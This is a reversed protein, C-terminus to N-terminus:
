GRFITKDKSVIARYRAVIRYITADLENPIPNKVVRTFGLSILVDDVTKLISKCEERKGRKKNSCVTVEYLLQAHNEGCSTTITSQHTLNDAEIIFVCPLSPPAKVYEGTIFANPHEHRVKDAILSFLETEIDIM